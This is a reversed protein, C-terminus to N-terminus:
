RGPLFREGLPRVALTLREIGVVEVGEGVEAAAGAACEADWIEGLLKVRGRPRCDEIVEAQRGVIGEVGTRIKIRGLYRYWLLSEGVEIVAGAALAIVGLPPDVLAFIVFGAVLAM